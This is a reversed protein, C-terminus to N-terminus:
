NRDEMKSASGGHRAAFIRARRESINFMRQSQHPGFWRWDCSEPGAMADALARLRELDHDTL